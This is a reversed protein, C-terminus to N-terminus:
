LVGLLYRLESQADVGPTLSQALEAHLLTRWAPVGLQAAAQATDGHCCGAM